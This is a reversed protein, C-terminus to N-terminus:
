VWCLIYSVWMYLWHIWIYTQYMHFVFGVLIGNCECMVQYFKTRQENDDYWLTNNQTRFKKTEIVHWTGLYWQKCNYVYCLLYYSDVDRWIYTQYMCFVFVEAIARWMLNCPYIASLRTKIVLLIVACMVHWTIHFM